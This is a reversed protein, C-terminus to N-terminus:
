EEEENCIGDNVVFEIRRTIDQFEDEMRILIRANMLIEADYDGCNELIDHARKFERDISTRMIDILYREARLRTSFESEIDGNIYGEHRVCYVPANGYAWDEEIYWHCDRDKHHSISAIKYWLMSLERIM